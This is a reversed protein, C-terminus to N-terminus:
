TTSSHYLHQLQTPAPFHRTVEVAAENLPIFKFLENARSNPTCSYIELGNAEINPKLTALRDIDANYVLQNNTKQAETLKVPWAYPRKTSTWFACGVLFLRRFGLRWALQISIPFVSKWWAVDVGETLFNATDYKEAHLEYFFTNPFTRLMRDTDRVLEMSTDLRAFKIIDARHYFHGGYCAPKDATLWFTPNPFIYPVNNLAMTLIGPGELQQLDEDNLSPHGGLIFLDEGLYANALDTMMLINNPERWRYFM